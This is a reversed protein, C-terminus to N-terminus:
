AAYTRSNNRIEFCKNQLMWEFDSFFLKMRSIALRTQVSCLNARSRLASVSDTSKYSNFIFREAKNQLRELIHVNRTTFPEWVPSAYDINPLILCKFAMLKVEPSAHDLKRRIMWLKQFGKQFVHDIHSNWNLDSSFFVGLYKYEIVKNLFLGNINYNFELIQKKRTVNMYVTKKINLEMQWETCWKDIKSLHRNLNEQDHVSSISCYVITDDAFHKLSIAPDFGDSMDSIYLIFLLPGIVSGQPVGSLVPM